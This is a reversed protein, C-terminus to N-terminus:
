KTPVDEQIQDIDTVPVNFRSDSDLSGIVEIDEPRAVYINLRSPKGDRDFEAFYVGKVRIYDGPAWSKNTDGNKLVYVLASSDGCQFRLAYHQPSEEALEQDILGEVSM